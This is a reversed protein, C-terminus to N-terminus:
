LIAAGTTPSACAQQVDRVARAMALSLAAEMASRKSVACSLVYKPMCYVMRAISGDSLTLSCVSACFTGGPGHKHFHKLITSLDLSRLQAPAAEDDSEELVDAVRDAKGGKQLGPWPRGVQSQM